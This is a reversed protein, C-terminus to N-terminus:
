AVTLAARLERAMRLWTATDLTEPRAAPDLEMAKLVSQPAATRGKGAMDALITKIQKRRHAFVAKTLEFFCVRDAETCPPAPLREFEVIASKVNPAPYFCAPSVLKKIAVAYDLRAWIGLLGFERGGPAATLRRAVEQQLTLVMRLPRNPARLLNVLIASGASYPLNAVVKNLGSGLLNNLDMELADAMVLEVSPSGAFRSSLHERLRLDKEIAVVRRGGAALAETLVGLGAGIELVADGPRLDAAAVIMNLINLDVLFNQGLTKLPKIDRERLIRTVGSLSTLNPEGSM